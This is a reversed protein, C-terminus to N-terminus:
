LKEGWWLATWFIKLIMDLGKNWVRNSIKSLRLICCCCRLVVIIAISVWVSCSLPYCTCLYWIDPFIVTCPAAPMARCDIFCCAHPPPCVASHNWKKKVHDSIALCSFSRLSSNVYCRCTPGCGHLKYQFPMLQTTSCWIMCPPGGDFCAWWGSPACAITTCRVATKHLICLCEETHLCSWMQKWDTSQPFTVPLLNTLDEFFTVAPVCLKDSNDPPIIKLHWSLFVASPKLMKVMAKILLNEKQATCYMWMTFILYDYKPPTVSDCFHTIWPFSEQLTHYFVLLILYLKHRVCRVLICILVHIIVNFM